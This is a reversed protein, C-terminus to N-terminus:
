RRSRRLAAELVPLAQMDKPHTSARKLRIITELSLVRITHGAIM